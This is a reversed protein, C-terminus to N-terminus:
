KLVSWVKQHKVADDDEADTTLEYDLVCDFVQHFDFKSDARDKFKEMNENFLKEDFFDTTRSKWKIIKRDRLKKEASRLQVISIKYRGGNMSRADGFFQELSDSQIKSALFYDPSCRSFVVPIIALLVESTQVVAKFTDLSLDQQKSNLIQQTRQLISEKNKM